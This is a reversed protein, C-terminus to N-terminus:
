DAWHVPTQTLGIELLLRGTEIIMNRHAEYCLLCTRRHTRGYPALTEAPRKKCLQCMTPKDQKAPKLM